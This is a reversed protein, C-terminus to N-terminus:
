RKLADLHDLAKVAGTEAKKMMKKLERKNESALCAGVAGAAIGTVLGLAAGKFMGGNDHYM